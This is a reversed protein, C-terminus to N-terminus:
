VGGARRRGKPPQGDLLAVLEDGIGDRLKYYRETMTLTSHGMWEQLVRVPVGCGAAASGFGHRMAHPGRPKM